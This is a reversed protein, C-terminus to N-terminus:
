VIQCHSKHLEGFNVCVPRNPQLPTEFMTGNITTRNCTSRLCETPDYTSADIALLSMCWEWQPQLDTEHQRSGTEARDLRIASGCAYLGAQSTHSWNSRDHDSATWDTKGDRNVDRHTKWTFAFWPDCTRPPSVTAVLRFKGSASAVTAAWDSAPTFTAYCVVFCVCSIHRRKFNGDSYISYPIKDAVIMYLSTCCLSVVFM